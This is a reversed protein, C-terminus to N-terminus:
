SVIDLLEPQLSFSSGHRTIPALAGYLKKASGAASRWPESEPIKGRYGEPSQLANIKVWNGKGRKIINTNKMLKYITTFLRKKCDVVDRNRTDTVGPEGVAFLLRWFRVSIVGSTRRNPTSKSSQITKWSAIKHFM